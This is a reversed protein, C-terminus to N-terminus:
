CPCPRNVFLCAETQPLLSLSCTSPGYKSQATNAQESALPPMEQRTQCLCADQCRGFVSCSNIFPSSRYRLACLHGDSRWFRLSLCVLFCMWVPIRSYFSVIISLCESVFVFLHMTFFSQLNLLLINYIHYPLFDTLQHERYHLIIITRIQTRINCSGCNNESNRLVYDSNHSLSLIM